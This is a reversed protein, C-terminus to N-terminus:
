GIELKTELRLRRELFRDAEQAQAVGALAPFGCVLLTEASGDLIKPAVPSRNM